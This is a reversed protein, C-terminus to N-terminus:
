GAVSLVGSLSVPVPIGEPRSKLRSLRTLEHAIENPRLVSGVCGTEIASIPMSPFRASGPYQAFTVGGARKITQVGLAGDCGGGSLVVGIAEDGRDAALSTFLADAPGQLAGGVPSVRFRGGIITLAVNARTVYVHGREPMAGDQALVVPHSTRKALADDLPTDRRGPDFHQVIVFAESCTAPLASLLEVVAELDGTSSAVAVIPFTDM